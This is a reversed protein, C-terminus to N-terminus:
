GQQSTPIVRTPTIKATEKVALGASVCRCEKKKKKKITDGGRPKLHTFHVIRAKEQLTPRQKGQGPLHQFLLCNASNLTHTLIKFDSEAGEENKLPIFRFAGDQYIRCLVPLPRNSKKQTVRAGLGLRAPM